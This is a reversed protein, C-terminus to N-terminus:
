DKSLSEWSPLNWKRRQWSLFTAMSIGFALGVSVSAIATNLVPRDGWVTLYMFVGWFVGFQLGLLAAVAPFKWFVLPPLHMGVASLIRDIPPRAIANPLGKASAFELWRKIKDEYSVVM